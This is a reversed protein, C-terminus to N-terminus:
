PTPLDPSDRHSKSGCAEGILRNVSAAAELQTFHGTDPVIELRASPVHQRLLEFWPVTQGAKLPVRKGEANITTSQIATLAARVAALAQEMHEADWRVMSLWAAIATEAPMRKARAMIAQSQASPRLFMQSFLADAFDPYGLTQIMARMASEAQQGDGRARRSGDVLVLTSVREPDLRAAELVVRCGMSHGVLISKEFDLDKLLAAVDGGYHGITCEAPRGPSSGHGRLDCAVVQRESQFHNVQFRWDSHDCTFGHVFVLPPAGRGRSVCHM